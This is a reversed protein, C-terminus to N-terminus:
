DADREQAYGNSADWILYMEAHEVDRFTTEFYIERATEAKEADTALRNEYEGAANRAVIRFQPRWRGRVYECVEAADVPGNCDLIDPAIDEPVDCFMARPERPCIEIILTM